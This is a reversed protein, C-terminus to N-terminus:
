KKRTIYYDEPGKNILFFCAVVLLVTIITYIIIHIINKQYVSGIGLCFFLLGYYQMPILLITRTNKEKFFNEKKEDYVLKEQNWFIGLSWIIIGSFLFLIPLSSKLYEDPIFWMASISLGVILGLIFHEIKLSTM